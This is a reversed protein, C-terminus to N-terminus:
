HVSGYKFKSLGVQGKLLYILINYLARSLFPYKIIISPYNKKNRMSVMHQSGRMQVMKILPNLHPTVVYTKICFLFIGRIIM